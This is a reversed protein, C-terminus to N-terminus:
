TYRPNKQIKRGSTSSGPLFNLVPNLFSLRSPAGGQTPEETYSTEDETEEAQPQERSSDLDGEQKRSSDLDAGEEDVEEESTGEEVSEEPEPLRTDM